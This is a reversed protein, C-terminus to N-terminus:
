RQGTSGFGGTRKEETDIGHNKHYNYEAEYFKRVQIADNKNDFYGLHIQKNNNMITARWKQRSKYWSVGITGSNNRKTIPMNRSNESSTVERLNEIRNDTKVRNIHDIEKTPFKGYTFYWALRHGLYLKKSVMIAIYGAKNITSCVDGISVRNSITKTWTFLGTRKNYSLAEELSIPDKKCSCNKCKTSGGNKVNSTRTVYQNLCLPCEYEAYMSRDKPKKIGGLHKLMKM